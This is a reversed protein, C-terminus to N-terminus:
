LKTPAASELMPKASLALARVRRWRRLHRSRPPMTQPSRGRAFWYQQLLPFVQAPPFVHPLPQRLGPLQSILGVKGRHRFVGPQKQVPVTPPPVKQACAAKGQSEGLMVSHVVLWSQGVPHTHARVQQLRASGIHLGGHGALGAQAAPRRRRYLFPYDAVLTAALM